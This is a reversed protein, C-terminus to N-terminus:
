FAVDVVSIYVEKGVRREESRFLLNAAVRLLKERDCLLRLVLPIDAPRDLGVIMKPPFMWLICQRGSCDKPRGLQNFFRTIIHCGGSGITDNDFLIRAAGM